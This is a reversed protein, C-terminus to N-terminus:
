PVGQFHFLGGSGCLVHPPPRMLTLAEEQGRVAGPLAQPPHGQDDAAGGEQDRRDPVSLRADPPLHRLAPRHGRLGMGPHVSSDRGGPEPAGQHKESHRAGPQSQGHNSRM